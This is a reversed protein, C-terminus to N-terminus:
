GKGFLKALYPDNPDPKGALRSLDKDSFSDLQKEIEPNARLADVNERESKKIQDLLQKRDVKNAKKSMEEIEEATVITVKVGDTELGMVKQQLTLIQEALVVKNILEKISYADLAEDTYSPMASIIYAKMTSIVDSDLAKRSDELYGKVTAADILGSASMIAEALTTVVGAVMTDIDIPPYVVAQSVFLDEMALDDDLRQAQKIESILLPRYYYDVGDISIYFLDSYKSKLENLDTSNM